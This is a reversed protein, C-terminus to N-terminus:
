MLRGFANRNIPFHWIPAVHLSDSIYSDYLGLLSTVTGLKAPGARPTLKESNKEKKAMTLKSGTFPKRNIPFLTRRIKAATPLHADGASGLRAKSM